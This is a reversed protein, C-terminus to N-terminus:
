PWTGSWSRSRIACRAARPATTSRSRPLFRTSGAATRARRRFGRSVSPSRWGPGPSRAQDRYLQFAWNAGLGLSNIEFALQNSELDTSLEGSDQADQITAELALLWEGMMSAIRDRVPGPRSDWEHSAAAFFCGGRFVESEMYELWANTLVLLRGIGSDARSGWIVQEIFIERAADVTALQLEEKSGFHAILGSKSVGLDGALRGISLGDLGEESALQM